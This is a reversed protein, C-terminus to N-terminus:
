RFIWNGTMGSPMLYGNLVHEPMDWIGDRGPCFWPGRFLANGEMYKKDKWLLEYGYRKIFERSEKCVYALPMHWGGLNLIQPAFGHYLNEQDEGETCLRLTRPEPLALEWIEDKIEQPLLM